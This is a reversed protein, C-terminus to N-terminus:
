GAIGAFSVAADSRDFVYFRRCNAATTTEM